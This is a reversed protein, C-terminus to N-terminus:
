GNFDNAPNKGPVPEGPAVPRAPGRVTGKWDHAHPGRELPDKNGAHGRDVDTQARGDPGYSRIQQGDGRTVTSGPEGEVPLKTDDHSHGPEDPGAEPRPEPQAGDPKEQRWAQIRRYILAGGGGIAAGIALPISIEPFAIAVPIAPLLEEGEYGSPDEYAIPNSNNWMYKAQSRPDSIDGEYADPTTWQAVTPDYNRVGQITAMGDTIGDPRGYM